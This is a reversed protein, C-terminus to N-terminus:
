INLLCRCYCRIHLWLVTFYRVLHNVPIEVTTWSYWINGIVMSPPQILVYIVWNSSSSSACNCWATCRTNLISTQMRPFNSFISLGESDETRRVSSKAITYADDDVSDTAFPQSILESDSCDELKTIGWFDSQMYVAHKQYTYGVHVCTTYVKNTIAPLLCRSIENASAVRVSKAHRSM